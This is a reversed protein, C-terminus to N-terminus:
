QNKKLSVAVIYGWKCHPFGHSCSRMMLQLSIGESATLSRRYGWKVGPECGIYGWKCHPFMIQGITYTNGVSIGESATLSCHRCTESVRIFRYVSVQLSPVDFGKGFIHVHGIYGWKCHPFMWLSGREGRWCSIGESATLSRCFYISICTNTCIYGWKCHPFKGTYVAAADEASIGESATLSGGSLACAATGPRYVRVQLSPVKRIGDEDAIWEIYGWKCHPFM